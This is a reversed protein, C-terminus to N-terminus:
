TKLVKEQGVAGINITYLILFFKGVFHAMLNVTQLMKPLDDCNM